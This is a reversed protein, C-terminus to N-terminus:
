ASTSVSQLFGQVHAHLTLNGGLEPLTQWVDALGNVADVGCQSEQQGQPDCSILGQLGEHRVSEPHLVCSEM